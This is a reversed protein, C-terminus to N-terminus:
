CHCAATEDQEGDRDYVAVQPNPTETRDEEGLLTAGVYVGEKKVRIPSLVARIRGDTEEWLGYTGAPLREFRFFRLERKRDDVVQADGPQLRQYVEGDPTRLLMARAQRSDFTWDLHVPVVFDHEVYAGSQSRADLPERSYVGPLYIESGAPNTEANSLSPLVDREDFFLLEVRRNSRSAYGDAGVADIPHHESFGLAQRSEDLWKLSDRLKAAAKPVEGLECAIAYQLVDFFAGWTLPGVSGDAELDPSSLAGLNYKFFTYERQFTRVAEVASHAVDDITGPDCTFPINVVSRTCWRLLHKYDSVRHRTNVLTKFAERDGTLLARVVNAREESLVQNYAVTDVSDTHGAIFLKFHPREECLRLTAAFVAISSPTSTNGGAQADPKAQANGGAAPYDQGDPMVVCSDTRFRTDPLELLYLRKSPVHQASGNPSNAGDADTQATGANAGCLISEGFGNVINAACEGHQALKDIRFTGKASTVHVASLGDPTTLEVEVGELPQGDPDLITLGVWPQVPRKVPPRVQADLLRVVAEGTVPIGDIRTAGKPTLTRQERRGDPTSVSVRHAALQNGDIDELQVAVYHVQRQNTLSEASNNGDTSSGKVGKHEDDGTKAKPQASSAVQQVNSAVSWTGTKVVVPDPAGTSPNIAPVVTAMFTGTTKVTGVPLKVDKIAASMTGPNVSLVVSLVTGPADFGPSTYMQGVAQMGAMLIESEWIVFEGKAKMRHGPTATVKVKVPAVVWSWPPDPTLELEDGNVLLAEM